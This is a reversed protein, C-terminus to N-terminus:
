EEVNIQVYPRLKATTGTFPMLVEMVVQSARVVAVGPSPVFSANIADQAFAGELITKTTSALFFANITDTATAPEVLAPIERLVAYSVLKSLDEASSQLVTYSTLKSLELFEVSIWAEIGLQSVTDAPVNQVWAEIGLQSVRLDTVTLPGSAAEGAAGNPGSLAGGVPSSSSNVRPRARSAPPLNTEFWPPIANLVAYSVAKSVDESTSQLVAYDVTKSLQQVGSFDQSGGGTIGGGIGGVAASKRPRKLPVDNSNYTYDSDSFGVM